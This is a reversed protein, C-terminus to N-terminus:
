EPIPLLLHKQLYDKVDPHETEGARVSPIQRAKYTKEMGLVSAAQAAGHRREAMVEDQEQENEVGQHLQPGEEAECTGTGGRPVPGSHHQTEM